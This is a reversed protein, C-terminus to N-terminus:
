YTQRRRGVAHIAVGAGILVFALVVLGGVDAGTFPLGAAATTTQTLVVPEAPAVTTATSGPLTSGGTSSPITTPPPGVSYAGAPAAVLFISLFGLLLTSVGVIAARMGRQM